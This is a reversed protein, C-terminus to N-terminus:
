LRQGQYWGKGDRKKYWLGPHLSGVIQILNLSLNIYKYQAACPRAGIIFLHIRPATRHRMETIICVDNSLHCKFKSNIYSRMNFVILFRQINPGLLGLRFIRSVIM